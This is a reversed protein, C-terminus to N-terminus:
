KWQHETKSLHAFMASFASRCTIIVMRRKILSSSFQLRYETKLNEIGKVTTQRIWEGIRLVEMWGQNIKTKWVTINSSPYSRIFHSKYSASSLPAIRSQASCGGGKGQPDMFNLLIVGSMRIHIVRWISWRSSGMWHAFFVCKYILYKEKSTQHSFDFRSMQRNHSTKFARSTREAASAKFEKFKETVWITM